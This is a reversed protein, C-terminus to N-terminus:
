WQLKWSWRSIVLKRFIKFEIISVIIKFKSNKQSFWPFCRNNSELNIMKKRRNCAIM